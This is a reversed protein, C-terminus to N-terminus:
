RIHGITEKIDNLNNRIYIINKELDDYFCDPKAEVKNNVLKDVPREGKFYVYLDSVMQNTDLALDVVERSLDAIRESICKEIPVADCCDTRNM